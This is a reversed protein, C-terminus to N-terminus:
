WEIFQQTDDETPLVQVDELQKVPKSKTGKKPVGMWNAIRDELAKEAAKQQDLAAQLQDQDEKSGLKAMPHIGQMASRPAECLFQGNEKYVLIKEPNLMDYKIRFNFRRGVEFGSLEPNFYWVGNIKFGRANMTKVTEEMLMYQTESENLHRQKLTDWGIEHTHIQALENPTKGQLYKGSKERNNYIEIVQTWYQYCEGLTMKGGQKEEQMAQIRKALKENRQMYAPQNAISNEVYTPLAQEFEHLDAFAKEIPKTRANYAKAFTIKELGHAKMRVFLGDLDKELDACGTFYKNKFARGNDMYVAKPVIGGSVGVMRGAGLLSNRFASLVSQTNETIMLEFGMIAWTRFDMWAVMIPRVQKSPDNPHQITFNMKHGDAVWLDMFKSKSPDRDISPLQSEKAEKMSIRVGLVFDKNHQEFEVLFRRCRSDTLPELGKIEFGNQAWKIAVGIKPANPHIYCKLLINEHEKTMAVTENNGNNYTPALCEYNWNNKKLQTKWRAISQHSLKKVVALEEQHMLGSLVMDAFDQRAQTASPKGECYADSAKVLNYKAMAQAHQKHTLLQEKKPESLALSTIQGGQVCYGTPLTINEAGIKAIAAAHVKTPLSDLKILRKRKDNPHEINYYSPNTSTSKRARMLAKNPDTLLGELLKKECYIHGEILQLM